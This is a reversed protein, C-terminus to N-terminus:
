VDFCFARRTAERRAEAIPTAVDLPMSVAEDVSGTEEKIETSSLGIVKADVLLKQIAEAVWRSRLM